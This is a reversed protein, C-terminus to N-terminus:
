AVNIKTKELLLRCVLYALSQLESTHEESRGTEAVDIRRGFPQPEGGRRLFSRGLDDEHVAERTAPCQHGGDQVHRARRSHRAPIAHRPPLARVLELRGRWSASVSPPM